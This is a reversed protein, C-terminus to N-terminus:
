KLVGWLCFLDDWLLIEENNPPTRLYYIGEVSFGLGQAGGQSHALDWRQPWPAM